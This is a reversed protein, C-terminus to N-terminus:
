WNALRFNKSMVKSFAIASASSVFSAIDSISRVDIVELSEVVVEAM